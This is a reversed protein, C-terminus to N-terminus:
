MQRSQPPTSTVISDIWGSLDVDPGEYDPLKGAAPPAAMVPGEPSLLQLFDADSVFAAEAAIGLLHQLTAAAAAM